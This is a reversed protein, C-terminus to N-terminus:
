QIVMLFELNVNKKNLCRAKRVQTFAYGGFTDKCKKSVFIEPRINDILKHKSLIKDSPTALLELINPNNNKLLEIFRGLEYYVIDNSENTVQPIYELGYFKSQPLIFVGKIDTDSTPLELGYARSGSICEYIILGKDKLEQITM